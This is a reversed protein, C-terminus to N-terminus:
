SCSRNLPKEAYGVGVYHMGPTLPLLQDLKYALAKLRPGPVIGSICGTPEIYVNEFDGLIGSLESIEFYRWPSTDRWWGILYRRMAMHLKTGKLNDAFLVKGGPKLVRHIERMVKAPEDLNGFFGLVSKLIVIDFTEPKTPM